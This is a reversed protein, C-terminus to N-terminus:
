RIDNVIRRLILLGGLRVTFDRGGDILIAFILVEDSSYRLTFRLEGLFFIGLHAGVSLFFKAFELRSDTGDFFVQFDQQQGFIGVVLFIDDQFNPGARASIFGRKEGRFDESHVGAEGFHLAPLNFDERGRFGRRSSQLFDDGDNFAMPNKRLQFIFATYVANLANGGGLLLSADM